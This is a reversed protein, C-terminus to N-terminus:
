TLTQSPQGAERPRRVPRSAKHLSAQRNKAIHYGGLRKSSAVDVAKNSIRGTTESFQQEVFGILRAFLRIRNRSGGSESIYTEYILSCEKQRDLPRLDKTKSHYGSTGRKRLEHYM